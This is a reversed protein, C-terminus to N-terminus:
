SGEENPRSDNGSECMWVLQAIIKFQAVIIAGRKNPAKDKAVSSFDVCYMDLLEYNSM